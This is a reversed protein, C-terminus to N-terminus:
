HDRWRLCGGRCHTAESAAVVVEAGVIAAVEAGTSSPQRMVRSPTRAGTRGHSHPCSWGLISGGGGHRVADQVVGWHPRDAPSAMSTAFGRVARGDSM